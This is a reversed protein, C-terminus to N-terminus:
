LSNQGMESCKSRTEELSLRIQRVFQWLDLKSLTIHFMCNRMSLLFLENAVTGLVEERFCRAQASLLMCAPPRLAVTQPLEQGVGM